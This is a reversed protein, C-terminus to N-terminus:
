KELIWELITTVDIDPTELLDSNTSDKEKMSYTRDM